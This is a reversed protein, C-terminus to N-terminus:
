SARARRGEIYWGTAVIPVLLILFGPNVAIFWIFGGFLALSLVGAAGFVVGFAGTILFEKFAPGVTDNEKFGDPVVLHCEYETTSRSGGLEGFRM